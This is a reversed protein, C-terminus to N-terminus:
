FMLSGHQDDAACTLADDATKLAEDFRGEEVLQKVRGKLATCRARLVKPDGPLRVLGQDALELATDNDGLMVFCAARCSWAEGSSGEIELSRSYADGAESWKSLAFLSDGVFHWVGADSDDLALSKRFDDLAEQHRNLRSLAVGRFGWSDARAPVVEVLHSFIALAEETKGLKLLESGQEILSDPNQQPATEQM